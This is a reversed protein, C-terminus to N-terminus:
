YTNKLQKKHTNKINKRIKYNIYYNYKIWNM